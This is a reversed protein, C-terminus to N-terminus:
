IKTEKRKYLAAAAKQEPTIRYSERMKRITMNQVVPDLVGSKLINEVLAENKVAMEALCWATAMRVYYRQDRIAILLKATNQVADPTLFYDMLMIIGFRITYELDSDLCELTFAWAAERETTKLKLTPVISDTHAWSDLHPLLIRLEGTKDGFGEKAYAVTLGLLLVEEFSDWKSQRLLSRWDGKSLRKAMKRLEPIRIGYIPLHSDTIVANAYNKVSCPAQDELWRRIQEYDM